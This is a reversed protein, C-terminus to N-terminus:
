RSRPAAMPQAGSRVREAREMPMAEGPDEVRHADIRRGFCTVEGRGDLACAWDDGLALARADGIGPVPSPNPATREARPARTREPGRDVGRDGAGCGGM